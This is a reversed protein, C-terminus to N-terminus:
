KRCSILDKCNDPQCHSARVFTGYHPSEPMHKNSPIIDISPVSARHQHLAATHFDQPPNVLARCAELHRATECEGHGFPIRPRITFLHQTILITASGQLRFPVARPNYVRVETQDLRARVTGSVASSIAFLYHTSFTVSGLTM